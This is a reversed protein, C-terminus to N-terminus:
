EKINWLANIIMREKIRGDVAPINYRLGYSTDGWAKNKVVGADADLYDVSTQIVQSGILLRGYGVFVPGGERIVNEPGSFVYSPRGGGEVERFDDFTPDPTLLNQVGAAVLGIGAVVMMGSTSAWGNVALGAGGVWILAVGIIITIWSMADDSGEIVPVIDITKLNSVSELCLESAMLGEKTDPDKTEDMAFDDGNILVRYKINKKDNEMLSQYLKKSTSQVGRIAEGVNGAVLNWQDRGVQEKLIGHLTVKVKKM